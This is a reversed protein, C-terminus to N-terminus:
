CLARPKPDHLSVNFSIHRDHWPPSRKDRFRVASTSGSAPADHFLFRWCPAYKSVGSVSTNPQAISGFGRRVRPQFQAQAISPCVNAADLVPSTRNTPFLLATRGGELNSSRTSARKRSPPLTLSTKNFPNGHGATMLPFLRKKRCAVM